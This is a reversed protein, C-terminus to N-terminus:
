QTPPNPDTYPNPDAHYEPATYTSESPTTPKQIEIPSPTLFDKAKLNKLDGRMYLVLFSGGIVLILIGVPAWPSGPEAHEEAM